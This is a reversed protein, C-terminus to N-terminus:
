MLPRSYPDFLVYIFVGVQVPFTVIDLVITPPLLVAKVMVNSRYYRRVFQRTIEDDDKLTYFFLIGNENRYPVALLCGGDEVIMFPKSLLGADKPHVHFGFGESHGSAESAKRWDAGPVVLPLVLTKYDVDYMFSDSRGNVNSIDNQSRMGLSRKLMLKVNEDPVLTWKYLLADKPPNGLPLLHTEQVELSTREKEFSDGYFFSRHIRRPIGALSTFPHTNKTIQKKIDIRFVGDAESLEGHRDIIRTEYRFIDNIEGNVTGSICGGCLLAAFLLMIINMVKMSMVGINKLSLQKKCIVIIGM